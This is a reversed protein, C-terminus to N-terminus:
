TRNPLQPKPKAALAIRTLRRMAEPRSPRPEDHKAIWEDLAALEVPPLRVGVLVAGVYARGGKRKM